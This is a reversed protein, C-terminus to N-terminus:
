TNLLVQKGRSNTKRLESRRGYQNYSIDTRSKLKEKRYLEALVLNDNEDFDFIIANLENGRKDWSRSEVIEGSKNYKRIYKMAKADTKYDFVIEKVNEPNQLRLPIYKCQQYEWDFFYNYEEQAQLEFSTFIIFFM